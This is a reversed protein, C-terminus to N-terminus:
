SLDDNLSDYIPFRDGYLLTRSARIRNEPIVEVLCIGEGEFFATGVSDAMRFQSNEDRGDEMEPDLKVSIRDILIFLKETSKPSDQILDEIFVVEKNQMVRTYGKSLLIGLEQEATRGKKPHLPCLIMVKANEPFSFIYNVVDQVSDKKVPKGSVPSYTIGVRAYLLKLYDYIETTTGVTSRPNRTNVRQEIAIAPSVGRIYDVEPKEMRGLFQRAYASLSEVYM